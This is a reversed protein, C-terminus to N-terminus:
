GSDYDHDPEGAELVGHAWRDLRRAAGLRDPAHQGEPLQEERFVQDPDLDSTFVSACLSHAVSGTAIRLLDKGSVAIYAAAALLGMLLLAILIKLARVTNPWQESPQAKCSFAIAASAGNCFARPPCLGPARHSHTM